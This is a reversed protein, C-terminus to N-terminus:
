ALRALVDLVSRLGHHRGFDAHLLTLERLGRDLVLVSAIHLLGVRVLVLVDVAALHAFAGVVILLCIALGSRQSHPFFAALLVLLRALVLALWTVVAVVPHVGLCVVEDWRAVQGLEQELLARVPTQVSKFVLVAVLYIELIQIGVHLPVVLTLNRRLGDDFLVDRLFVM